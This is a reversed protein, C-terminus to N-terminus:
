VKWHFKINLIDWAPPNLPCILRRVPQSTPTLSWNWFFTVCHCYIINFVYRIDLKPVAVTVGGTRALSIAFKDLIWNRSFIDLVFSNRTRVSSPSRGRGRRPPHSPRSATPRPSSPPGGRTRTGAWWAWCRVKM